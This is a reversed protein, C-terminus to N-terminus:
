LLLCEVGTGLICVIGSRHGAVGRAAGLMDSNVEIQQVNPFLTQLANSVIDNVPPGTCGAGYFFLQEIDTVNLSPLLQENLIAAMQAASQYYPNLGDTQIAHIKGDSNMLRWDTKTSGSDAVLFM